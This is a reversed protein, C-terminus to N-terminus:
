DTPHLWRKRPVDTVVVDPYSASAAGESLFEYVVCSGEEEVPPVIVYYKFVTAM